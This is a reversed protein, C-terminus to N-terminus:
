GTDRFAVGLPVGVLPRGEFDEGDEPGRDSQDMAITAIQMKAAAIDLSPRPFLPRNGAPSAGRGSFFACPCALGSTSSSSLFFPTSNLYFLDHFLHFVAAASFAAASLLRGRLDGFGLLGRCFSSNAESRSFCALFSKSWFMPTSARARRSFIMLSYGFVLAAPSACVKSLFSPSQLTAPSAFPELELRHGLRRGPLHLPIWMDSGTCEKM